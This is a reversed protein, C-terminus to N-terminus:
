RITKLIALATEVQSQPICDGYWRWLKFTRYMEIPKLTAKKRTVMQIRTAM